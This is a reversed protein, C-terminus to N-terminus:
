FGSGCRQVVLSHLWSFEFYLLQLLICASCYPLGGGFVERTGGAHHHPRSSFPAIILCVATLFRGRVALTAPPALRLFAFQLLVCASHCPFGVNFGERLGGYHRPRSSFAFVLVFHFPPVVWDRSPPPTGLQFRMAFLFCFLM